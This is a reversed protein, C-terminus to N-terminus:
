PGVANTSRVEDVVSAGQRCDLSRVELRPGIETQTMGLEWCRRIIECFIYGKLMDNEKMKQYPLHLCIVSKEVGARRPIARTRDSETPDQVRSTRHLVERRDKHDVVVLM